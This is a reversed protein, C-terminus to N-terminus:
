YADQRYMPLRVCVIICMRYTHIRKMHPVCLSSWNDAHMYVITRLWLMCLCVSALKLCCDNGDDDDDDHCDDDPGDSPRDTRENRQLTYIRRHTYYYDQRAREHTRGCTVYVCCVPSAGRLHELGAQTCVCICLSFSSCVFVHTWKTNLEFSCVVPFFISSNALLHM